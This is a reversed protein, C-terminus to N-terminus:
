VENASSAITSMSWLLGQKAVVCITQISKSSLLNM